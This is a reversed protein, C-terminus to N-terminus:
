HKHQVSALVRGGSCKSVEHAYCVGAVECCRVRLVRVGSLDSIECGPADVCIM